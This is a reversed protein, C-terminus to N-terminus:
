LHLNQAQLTYQYASRTQQGGIRVLQPNQLYTRVAVASTRINPLGQRVNGIAVAQPPYTVQISTCGLPISPSM